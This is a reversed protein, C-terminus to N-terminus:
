LYNNKTRQGAAIETAVTVLTPTHSYLHQSRNSMREQLREM